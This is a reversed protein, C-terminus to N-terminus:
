FSLGGPALRRRRSSASGGGGGLPCNSCERVTVPRNSHHLRHPRVEAVECAARICCHLRWQTGNGDKWRLIALPCRKAKSPCQRQVTHGHGARRSVDLFHRPGDECLGALGRRTAAGPLCSGGPGGCCCVAATLRTRAGPASSGGPGEGTGSTATLRCSLKSSKKRDAGEPWRGLNPEGLRAPIPQCGVRAGAASCRKSRGPTRSTTGVVRDRLTVSLSFTHTHTHPRPQPNPRAATPLITHTHTHTHTRTEAKFWWAIDEGDRHRFVELLLDRGTHYIQQLNPLLDLRQHRHDLLLMHGLM